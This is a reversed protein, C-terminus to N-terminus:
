QSVRVIQRLQRSPPGVPDARIHGSTFLREMAHKLHDKSLGKADPHEAFVTPAYNSGPKDSVNRNQSNREDLLRLFLTEALISTEMQRAANEGTGEPVFVGNKWRM